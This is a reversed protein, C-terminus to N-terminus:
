NVKTLMIDTPVTFSEGPKLPITKKVTWHAISPNIGPNTIEMKSTGTLIGNGGNACTDEFYAGFVTSNYPTGLLSWETTTNSQPFYKVSNHLIVENPLGLNKIIMFKGFLKDMYINVENLLPRKEDKWIIVRFTITSNTEEWTSTTNEWTGVFYLSNNNLDKFYKNSNDGQNFTSIDVTTQAKCNIFLLILAIKLINNM